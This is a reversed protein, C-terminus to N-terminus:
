RIASKRASAIKGIAGMRKIGTPVLQAEAEIKEDPVVMVVAPDARLAAVQGRDLKASFGRLAHSFTRDATFGLKRGRDKVAVAANTGNKLLVIWRGSPDASSM